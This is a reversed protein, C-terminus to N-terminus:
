AARELLISNVGEVPKYCARKIIVALCRPNFSLKTFKNKLTPGALPKQNYIKYIYRVWISKGRRLLGDRMGGLCGIKVGREDRRLGHDRPM